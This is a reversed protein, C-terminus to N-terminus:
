HDGERELSKSVAKKVAERIAYGAVHLIPEGIEPDMDMSATCPFSHHAVAVTGEL